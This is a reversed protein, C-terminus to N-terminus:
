AEGDSGLFGPLAMYQWYRKFTHENMVLKVPFAPASSAPVAEPWRWHWEYAPLPVATMHIIIGIFRLFTGKTWSVAHKSSGENYHQAM